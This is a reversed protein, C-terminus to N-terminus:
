RATIKETKTQREEGKSIKVIEFPVGKGTEFVAHEDPMFHRSTCAIGRPPRRGGKEVRVFHLLRGMRIARM